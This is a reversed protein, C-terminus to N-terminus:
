ATHFVATYTAVVTFASAGFLGALPDSQILCSIAICLSGLTVCIRSELATPWRQRLWLSGIGWCCVAVAVALGQSLLGHPGIPSWIQLLSIASLGYIMLAVVRCTSRQVGHAALLATLWYYHDLGQWWRHPANM